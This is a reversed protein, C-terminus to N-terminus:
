WIGGCCRNHIQSFRACTAAAPRDAGGRAVVAIFTGDGACRSKVARVGVLAPDGVDRMDHRPHPQHVDREGDIRVGPRDDVSRSGDAFVGLEDQVGQAYPQPPAVLAAVRQAPALDDCSALLAYVENAKVAQRISVPM